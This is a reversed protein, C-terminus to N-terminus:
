WCHHFLKSSCYIFSSDSSCFLANNICHKGVDVEVALSLIPHGVSYRRFIMFNSFIVINGDVDGVIVEISPTAGFKTVDHLVIAQVAGGKTELGEEEKM